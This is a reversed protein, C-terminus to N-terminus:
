SSLVPTESFWLSSRQPSGREQRLMEGCQSSAPLQPGLPGLCQKAESEDPGPCDDNPSLKGMKASPFPCGSRSARSSPKNQLRDLRISGPSDAHRSPPSLRNEPSQILPREARPDSLSHQPPRGTEGVGPRQNKGALDMTAMTNDVPWAKCWPMGRHPKLTIKRLRNKRGRSVQAM